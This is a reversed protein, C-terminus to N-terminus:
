AADRTKQCLTAVFDEPQDPSIVVKHTGHHLVVTGNLDTVFARHFGLSKSWYWGTFSFGGGNGCIRLSKNMARPVFEASKLGNRDLRTNWFLRLILIADDAIAYGRIMFPLCSLVLVPLTWQALMTLGQSGGKLVLPWAVVGAVSLMVLLSSIVM